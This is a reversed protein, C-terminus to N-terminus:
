MQKEFGPPADCRDISAPAINLDGVVFVRKKFSGISTGM